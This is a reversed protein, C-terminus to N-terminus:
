VTEVTGDRAARYAAEIIAIVQAGEYGDVRTPKGEAVCALFHATENEFRDPGDYPVLTWADEGALRYRLQANEAGYDIVATGESGFVQVTAEGPPSVWSCSVVGPVGEASWMMVVASDEVSIPLMTSVQASVSTVEGVLYRFLDIAHVETDILIGGGAVEPVVFWTDQVGGFRFAFRNQFHLLRGLRGTGILKKLQVMPGHFRHCLATMLLVGKREAMKAMERATRLDHSLPKECLVPIGREVAARTGQLHIAPPTCVSVVDPRAKALMTEVDRYAQCGFETALAQAKEPVIDAV